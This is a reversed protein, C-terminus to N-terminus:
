RAQSVIKGTPQEAASVGTSYAGVGLVYLVAVILAVLVRAKVSDQKNQM